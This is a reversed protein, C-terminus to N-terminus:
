PEDDPIRSHPLAPEPRAFPYAGVASYPSPRGLAIPLDGMFPVVMLCAVEGSTCESSGCRSRCWSRNARFWRRFVRRRRVQDFGVGPALECRVFGDPTVDIVALDTIIRSVGGRGTFPLSCGAVLKHEGDKAVHDMLVIVRRAGYVHDMAGAMGKILKGPMAWNAIHGTVSVQMAGLVAPDIRKGWIKGFSAASDFYSAGPNPNPSSGRQSKETQGDRFDAM